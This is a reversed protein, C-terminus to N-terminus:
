RIAAKSSMSLLLLRTVKRSVMITLKQGAKVIFKHCHHDFSLHLQDPKSIVSEM